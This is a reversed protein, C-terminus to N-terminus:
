QPLPPHISLGNPPHVIYATLLRSRFPCLSSHKWSDLTSSPRSGQRRSIQSSELFPPRRLPQQPRPEPPSGGDCAALLRLLPHPHCMDQGNLYGACAGVLLPLRRTSELVRRPPRDGGSVTWRAWHPVMTQTPNSARRRTRRHRLYGGVWDGGLLSIWTMRSTVTLM